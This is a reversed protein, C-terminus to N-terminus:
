VTLGRLRRRGARHRRARQVVRGCISRAAAAREPPNLRRELEGLVVGFLLHRWTAQAFARRQAGARPMEDRAPHREDVLLTLPWTALHEALGAAPGRAWAPLPLAPAVNAYVAGFLAGNARADRGRDAAVGARPDGGQRAAGRRPLARRLRAPRAAVARGVGGGRRRRRARRPRNKQRGRERHRVVTVASRPVPIGPTSRSARRWRARVRPTVREDVPDHARDQLREEMDPEAQPPDPALVDRRAPRHDQRRVVAREEVREDDRDHGPPRDVEDRLLLQEEEVRDDRPQQAREAGERDVAARGVLLRHGRRARDELAAVDDQHERLARADPGAREAARPAPDPAQRELGARRDDGDGHDAGLRDAPAPPDARVLDADARAPRQRERPDFPGDGASAPATVSRMQGQTSSCHSHSPPRGRRCRAATMPAPARPVPSATASARAPRSTSRPAACASCAARMPRVPACRRRGARPGAARRRSRRHRRVPELELVVVEDHEGDRGCSRGAATAACPPACGRARRRARGRGRGRGARRCAASARVDGLAHARAGHRAEAPGPASPASASPAAITTAASSAGNRAWSAATRRAAPRSTVVVRSTAATSSAPVVALAPGAARPRSRTRASGGVPASARRRLLSGHTSM